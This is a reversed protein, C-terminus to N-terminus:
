LTMWDVYPPLDLYIWLGFYVLAAFFGLFAGLIAGRFRAWVLGVFSGGGVGLVPMVEVYGVELLRWEASVTITLVAFTLLLRVLVNLM